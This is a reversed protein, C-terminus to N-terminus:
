IMLKLMMMMMWVNTRSYARRMVVLVATQISLNQLHPRLHIKMKRGEKKKKKRMIMHVMLSYKVILKQRKMSVYLNKMLMKKKRLM